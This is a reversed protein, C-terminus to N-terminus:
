RSSSAPPCGNSSVRGAGAARVGNGGVPSRRRDAALPPGDASQVGAHRQLSPERPVAARRRGTAALRPHRADRSRSRRAAAPRFRAGATGDPAVRANIKGRGIPRDPPDSRGPQHSLQLRQARQQNWWSIQVRSGTRGCATRGASAPQSRDSANWWSEVHGLPEPRRLAHLLPRVQKWSVAADVLTSLERDDEGLAGSALLTAGLGVALSPQRSAGCRRVATGTRRPRGGALDASHPRSPWRSSIWAAKSLGVYRELADDEDDHGDSM